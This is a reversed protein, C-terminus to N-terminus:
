ARKSYVFTDTLESQSEMRMITYVAQESKKIITIGSLTIQVECVFSMGNKARMELNVMVDRYFKDYTLKASSFSSGSACSETGEEDGHTEAKYFEAQLREVSVKEMVEDDAFRNKVRLVRFQKRLYAVLVAIAYPDDVVIMCRTLDVLSAAQPWPDDTYDNSIKALCRQERKVPGPVFVGAGRCRRAETTAIRTRGELGAVQVELSDQAVDTAYCHELKAQSISNSISPRGKDIHTRELIEGLHVQAKDHLTSGKKQDRWIQFPFDSAPLGLDSPRTASNFKSIVKSIAAFFEKRGAESEGRLWELYAQATSDNRNRYFRDPIPQRLEASKEAAINKLYAFRTPMVM